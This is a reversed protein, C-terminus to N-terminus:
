KAATADSWGERSTGEVESESINLESNMTAIAQPVQSASSARLSSKGLVLPKSKRQHTWQETSSKLTFEPEQDDSISDSAETPLRHPM